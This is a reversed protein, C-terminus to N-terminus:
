IPNKANHQPPPPPPSLQSPPKGNTAVALKNASGPQHTASRVDLRMPCRNRRAASREMADLSKNDVCRRQSRVASTRITMSSCRVVSPTDIAPPSHRGRSVGAEFFVFCEFCWPRLAWGPAVNGECWFLSFGWFFCGFFFGFAAFFFFPVSV